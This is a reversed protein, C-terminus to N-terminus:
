RQYLHRDTIRCVGRAAPIWINIRLTDNAAHLDDPADLWAVLSHRGSELGAPLSFSLTDTQASQLTGTWNFLLDGDLLVTAEAGEVDNLSEALAILGTAVPDFGGQELVMEDLLGDFRILAADNEPLTEPLQRALCFRALYCSVWSMDETPPDSTDAMIGGDDDLDWSLLGDTIRRARAQMEPDGTALALEFFGNAYAVNWSSDWDYGPLNAWHAWEPVDFAHSFHWNMALLPRERFLSTSLGWLMTGSSMAWDNLALRTVPNVMIWNYLREAEDLAVQKLEDDNHYLAYEYLSGACWGTVFANITSTSYLPLPHDAIQTACNRAYQRYSTDATAAEYMECAALGWASNHNRYYEDTGGEEQWAPYNNCYIWAANVHNDMDTRGTLQRWRSWCWIAELTNDTQIVGGLDGAEAEIMGGYHPLFPDLQQWDALFHIIQDFERMYSFPGLPEPWDRGPSDDQIVFHSHDLDHEAEQAPPTARVPHLILTSLLLASLLHKM